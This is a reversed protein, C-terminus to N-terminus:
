ADDGADGAAYLTDFVPDGAAARLADPLGIDVVRGLRATAIGGSAALRGFAEGPEAEALLARLVGARAAGAAWILSSTPVEPRSDLRRLRGDADITCVDSREPHPSEFIGLALPEGGRVLAVLPRFGGAPSWVTDPFGFLAIDDPRLDRAALLLSAGLSGPHGTVVEAGSGSALAIVDEKDPRVSVVLRSAGGLRLRDILYAMVPRGRVDQVEKSGSVSGALRTAYGAAPILGVIAM